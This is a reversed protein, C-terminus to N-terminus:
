IKKAEENKRIKTFRLHFQAFSIGYSFWGDWRMGHVGVRSVSATRTEMGSKGAANNYITDNIKKEEASPEIRSNNHWLLIANVCIHM